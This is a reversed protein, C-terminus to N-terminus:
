EKTTPPTPLPQWHTVNFVEHDFFDGRMWRGDIHAVSPFVKKGLISDLSVIVVKNKRPLRDEVKIWDSM